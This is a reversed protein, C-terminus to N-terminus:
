LDRRGCARSLSHQFDWRLVRLRYDTEARNSERSIAWVPRHERRREDCGQFQAAMHSSRSNFSRSCRGGRDSRSSSATVSPSSAYQPECRWPRLPPRTIVRLPLVSDRLM